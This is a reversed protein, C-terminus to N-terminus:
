CCRIGRAEVKGYLLNAGRHMCRPYLLGPTGSKDRYLILEEDFIKVLKPLAAVEKALSVPQWYRRLLEGGLTGPGCRVLADDPAARPRGYARGAKDVDTSEM